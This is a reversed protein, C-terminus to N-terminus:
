QLIDRVYCIYHGGHASGRHIIIGYLEYDLSPQDVLHSFSHELSFTFLDNLKVRDMKEYDFALRNLTLIFISPLTKLRTGLWM